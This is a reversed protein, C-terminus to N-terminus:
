DIGFAYLRGLAQTVHISVGDSDGSYYFAYEGKELPKSPKVEYVGASIRQDVIDRTYKSPVGLRKERGSGGGFNRTKGLVVYRQGDKISMQVLKYWQPTLATQMFQGTSGGLSSSVSFDEFCFLFGPQENKLRVQAKIGHLVATQKSGFWLKDSSKTAEIPAAHLIRLSQGDNLFIGSQKCPTGAFHDSTREAAAVPAPAAPKKGAETMAALVDPHVGAESLALLTDISTDFDTESASIKATIVNPPLGAKSLKLVDENTLKESEATAPKGSEQAACPPMASLSLVLIVACLTRTFRSASRLSFM